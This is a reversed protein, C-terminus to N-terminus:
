PGRPSARHGDAGGLYETLVWSPLAAVGRKSAVLQMIMETLESIRTAKPQIGAPELFHKFVDLREHEVPYVILTEQALDQPAIWDKAALAHTKALALM